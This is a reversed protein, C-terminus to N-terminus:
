SQKQYGFHRAPTGLVLAPSFSQQISPVREPSAQLVAPSPPPPVRGWRLEAGRPARHCRMSRPSRSGTRVRGGSAPQLCAEALAPVPRLAESAKRFDSPAVRGATPTASGCSAESSPNERGRPKTFDADKHAGRCKTGSVRFVICLPVSTGLPSLTAM